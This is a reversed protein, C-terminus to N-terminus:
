APRRSGNRSKRCKSISWQTYLLYEKFLLWSELVANWPIRELLDRFQDFHVKRFDLTTVSSKAQKRGRIIRLDVMEHDSCGLNDGSKVDEVLEEKKALTLDWLTSGRIPKEM